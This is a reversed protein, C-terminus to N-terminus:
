GGSPRPTDGANKPFPVVITLSGSLDIRATGPSVGAVAGGGQRKWGSDVGAKGGERDGSRTRPPSACPPGAPDAAAGRLVSGPMLSGPMLVAERFM